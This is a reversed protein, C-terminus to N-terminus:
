GMALTMPVWRHRNRLSFLTVAVVFIVVLPWIQRWADFGRWLPALTIFAALGLVACSALFASITHRM